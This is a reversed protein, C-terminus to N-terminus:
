VSTLAQKLATTVREASFRGGVVSVRIVDRHVIGEVVQAYQGDNAELVIVRRYEQTISRLERVLPPFIRIPRFLAFDDLLPAIVRSLIGFAIILDHGPRERHEYFPYRAAVGDRKERVKGLWSQYFLADATRIRGEEDHVLGTFFRNGTGLPPRQRAVVEVEMAELDVTENLHGVFSDSLLVVPSLSEEAANFAAVTLRYCEAVSNPYFVIPYYDGSSGYQSQLIDGQAPMTPMGTGPGVRQVNIVVCPVEAQHGWGIAEQMLTFGPGSTATFAKGGALSAGLVQNIAALEDEAQLFHFDPSRAAQQAALLLIESSPSIPYGAFYTAGAKVAGAFVAENGQVLRKM